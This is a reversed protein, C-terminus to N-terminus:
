ELIGKAERVCAEELFENEEIGGGPTIYANFKKSFLVAIKNNKIIISRADIKTKVDQNFESNNIRVHLM